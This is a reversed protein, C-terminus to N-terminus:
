FEDAKEESSKNNFWVPNERTKGQYFSSQMLLGYTDCLRDFKVKYIAVVGQVFELQECDEWHSVLLELDNVVSRAELIYRELDFLDVRYNSM